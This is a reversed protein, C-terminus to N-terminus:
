ADHANVEADQVNLAAAARAPLQRALRAIFKACRDPASIPLMHGGNEALELGAGPLQAALGEGHVRCDLIRDGTGFLVWVPLGLSGYRKALAPLDAPIAMLDTSAAYFSSPRLSLLGGGKTAFDAPVPEPGFLTELVIRRRAISLPTALTWAIM